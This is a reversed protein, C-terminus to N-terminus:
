AHAAQIARWVREPTCPIDVHRVGLHALADCVASQVAPTAGITGSEGIGKAGLPNMPTPTEMTVLEFDPLETASIIGYDAFNATIPNGDVDYRVEELLAQAAGQSIGGHRQGEVLLPNVIRGADDVTLMRSLVVQGTETDVDVVAVHCGFPFTTSEATFDVVGCIGTGDGREAAATAVEAWSRSVAPTGTVHFQGSVTDLVVDDPSAELLEAALTRAEDVAQESARLVASGGLQLSRSGMTGEGKAVLDTDGWVLKVRDMPIGTADQVIMAFATEHGQGHPSSGTFVTASGDPHVEIRAHESGATPGATVEVYVSVGIGMAIPDGADRRRQQETRLAQYDISTLALDLATEYDGNDYTTDVATATPTDFKPMLNRRRVEVADMGIEAAFLDMAREIAAAAEPRGAGRYAGTPTTNTAVSNSNCEVKPIVYVGPAMIRTLFPLIAGIAPYAGADQLVTLRYAGVKGDRSGGIEVTQTQGRGHVMGVMNESRTEHWRVPRGLRRAAWAVLVEEAAAGTKAGFGGGVDPTAVRVGDNELAFLAAIADRVGHAGQTSLWLNLKGNSDWVAAAGRVELPAANVRPNMVRQKVVVECGDFLDDSHGVMLEFASNTGAEEFLLVENRVSDEPDVVVPLPEYDVIVLEAADAGQEPRDSVIAAIPEGVFRVRGDSLVPRVMLANLMFIALPMPGIDLDAHTYVAHVGPASAAESVDITFTGHALTSRVFTVYLAGDLLPDRFDAMYMGGETLFRPDEIRAVRTGLISM